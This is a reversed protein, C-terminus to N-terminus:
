VLAALEDWTRIPIAADIEDIQKRTTELADSLTAALASPLDHPPVAVLAALTAGLAKRRDALRPPILAPLTDLAVSIIATARSVIQGANTLRLFEAQESSQIQGRCKRVWSPLASRERVIETRWRDLRAAHDRLGLIVDRWDPDAVGAPRSVYGDDNLFERIPAMCLDTLTPFDAAIVDPEPTPTASTTPKSPKVATTPM